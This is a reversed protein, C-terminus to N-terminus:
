RIGAGQQHQAAEGLDCAHRDGASM